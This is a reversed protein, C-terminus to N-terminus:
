PLIQKLNTAIRSCRFSTYPLSLYFYKLDPNNEDAERIAKNPNPGFNRNKIEMIKNRILYKPYQNNLFVKELYM